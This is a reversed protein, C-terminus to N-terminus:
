IFRFNARQNLLRSGEHPSIDLIYKSDLTLCKQEELHTSKLDSDLFVDGTFKSM